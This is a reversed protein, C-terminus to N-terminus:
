YEYTKIKSITLNITKNKTVVKKKEFSFDILGAIETKKSSTTLNDTIKPLRVSGEKFTDRFWAIEKDSAKRVIEKISAYTSSDSFVSPKCNLYQPDTKFGGKLNWSTSNLKSGLEFIWEVKHVPSLAIVIDGKNYQVDQNRSEQNGYKEQFKGPDIYSKKDLVWNVWKITDEVIVKEFNMEYYLSHADLSTKSLTKKHVMIYPEDKNRAFWRYNPYAECTVYYINNKDRM